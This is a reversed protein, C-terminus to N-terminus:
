TNSGHIPQYRGQKSAMIRQFVPLTELPAPFDEIIQDGAYKTGTIIDQWVGQPLYIDRSIVGAKVIPSILIDDGLLFEDDCLLAREDAPALWWVPRIIPDGTCVANKALEIIRPAYKMHLKTYSLCISECEEGYDWPALSFQMSPLLANVQTWRIMLEADPQEVYANGGIMDPLIFPYGTMSMALASTLVSHLGNDLGWRTAKDWQRFFIPTTQNKWGARVETLSYREGIAKVYLNTFENPHIRERTDADEPLFCAEGADFKFGDLGYDVQLKALRDFFWNVAEPNTVDLLGGNGQWWKVLYPSGDAHKVLWHNKEGQAFGTSNPEYFPIVWATVKFGKEHLQDIMAKPNPFAKSNFALDGYNSQWKDDIELVNCPYGHQVIEDAFQLIVDQNIATKYRAWTTWTPKNFLSEDPIDAPRGYHSILNCCADVADEHFSISVNLDKGKLTLLGDGIGHEDAYPRSSFPAQNPGLDWEYRPFEANIPPQNIGVYVPSNAVILVGMSSFWAPTLKGSLGTPGNDYTLLESNQFMCKNIPLIQHILEGQRVM